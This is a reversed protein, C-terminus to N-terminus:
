PFHPFARNEQHNLTECLDAWSDSGPQIEDESTTNADDASSEEGDTDNQRNEGRANAHCYRRKIRSILADITWFLIVGPRQVFCPSDNKSAGGVRITQGPYHDSRRGILALTLRAIKEIESWPSVSKTREPFFFSGIPGWIWRCYLNLSCCISRSSNHKRQAVRMAMGRFGIEALEKLPLGRRAVLHYHHCEFM